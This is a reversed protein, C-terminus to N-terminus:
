GAERQRSVLWTGCWVLALAGAYIASTNAIRSIIEANAENGPMLLIGVAYIPEILAGVGAFSPVALTVLVLVVPTIALGVLVAARRSKAGAALLVSLTVAVTSAPILMAFWLAVFVRVDYVGILARIVVACAVGVLAWGIMLGVWAGLVKGGLYTARSMPLTDLLERVKFQADLPIVEGMLLTVGIAYFVMGAILINILSITHSAEVVDIGQAWEPADAAATRELAGEMVPQQRNVNAVLGAFGCVGVLLLVWLIPLSRRRWAMLMEYRIIAGVKTM